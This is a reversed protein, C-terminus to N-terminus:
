RSLRGGCHVLLRRRMGVLSRLVGWVKGSRLVGLRRALEFRQLPGRQGKGSPRAARSSSRGSRLAGRSLRWRHGCLRLREVCRLLKSAEITQVTAACISFVLVYVDRGLMSRLCLFQSIVIDCVFVFFVCRLAHCVCVYVGVLSLAFSM